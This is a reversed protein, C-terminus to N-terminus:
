IKVVHSDAPTTEGVTKHPTAFEHNLKSQLFFGHSFHIYSEDIHFYKSGNQIIVTRTTNLEM